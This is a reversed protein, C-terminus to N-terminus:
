TLLHVIAWKDQAWWTRWRQLQRWILMYWRSCTTSRVFGTGHWTKFVLNTPGVYSDLRIVNAPCLISRFQLFFTKIARKRKMACTLSHQRTTQTLLCLTALQWVLQARQIDVLPAYHILTQARFFEFFVNLSLNRWSNVFNLANFDLCVNYRWEYKGACNGTWMEVKQWGWFDEKQKMIRGFDFFGFEAMETLKWRWFEIQEM